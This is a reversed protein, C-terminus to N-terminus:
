VLGKKVAWVAAQTRDKLEMKRLINQVHEKVTEISVELSGAIEKNSLGFALHRLIQVERNTLSFENQETLTRKKMQSVVDRLKGGLGDSTVESATFRVAELLDVLSETKYIYDSAGAVAARALNTPNDSCSFIVCRFSENERKLEELIDFVSTEGFWVETVVVDPHFAEYLSPLDGPMASEAVVDVNISAFFACLGFRVVEEDDLVVIRIPHSTFNM